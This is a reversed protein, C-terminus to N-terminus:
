VAASKLSLVALLANCIENFGDPKTIYYQAGLQNMEERDKALSSTTYIVVPIQSFRKIKKIEILFQKGNLRPMNLDLFIFDPLPILDEVLKQLGEEGNKAIFCQGEKDISLLAEMLLDRDEADDDVIYYKNSNM